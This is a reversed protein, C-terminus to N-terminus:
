WVMKYINGRNDVAVGFHGDIFELQLITGQDGTLLAHGVEEGLVSSLFYGQGFIADWAFALNPQPPYSDPTGPTKINVFSEREAMWKGQFSEGTIHVLSIKFSPSGTLKATYVPPPTQAALPGQVPYLYQGFAATSGYILCVTLLAFTFKMKM